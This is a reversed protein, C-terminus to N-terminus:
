QTAPPSKVPEPSGNHRLMRKELLSSTVIFQPCRWDFVYKPYADVNPYYNWKITATNYLGQVSHIAVSVMGTFLLVCWFVNKRWGRLHSAALIGILLLAPVTDTLLRPGYSHGGWWHPFLSVAIIEFLLWSYAFSLLVFDRRFWFLGALLVLVFHPSFVFLGRSPSFLNGVIATSFANTDKLRTFQYYPPLISGYYYFSFGVFVASCATLIVLSTWGDAVKRRIFLICVCGGVFIIASPRCLFAMFLCFGLLASLVTRKVQRGLIALILCLSTLMFIIEFNFSWLATGCTSAISSGGVFVASVLFAKFSSIRFRALVYALVSAASVTLAALWGQLNSEQGSIIMDKSLLRAFAVFPTAVLSTGPPFYYYTHGRYSRVRYGYRAKLADASGYADLQITGHQLLSQSVLLCGSPDSNTHYYVRLVASERVGLFFVSALLCILLIDCMTAHTSWMDKNM